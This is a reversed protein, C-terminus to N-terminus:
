RHYTTKVKEKNIDVGIAQFHRAFGLALPLGTYGLGIVCVVANDLSSKNTM